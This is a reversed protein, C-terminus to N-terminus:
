LTIGRSRIDGKLKTFIAMEVDSVRWGSPGWGTYPISAKAARDRVNACDDVFERYGSPKLPYGLNESIISDLVVAKDPSLFKLHKSAFSVSLGKLQLLSHLAGDLDGVKACQHAENLTRAAVELGNRLIVRGAIGAYRGWTCVRKIFKSTLERKFGSAVLELGLDEIERTDPNKEIFTSLQDPLEALNIEFRYFHLTPGAQAISM